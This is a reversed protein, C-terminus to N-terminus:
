IGNLNMKFNHEWKKRYRWLQRKGEPKGVLIRCESRMKVVCAVAHGVLGESRAVRDNQLLGV